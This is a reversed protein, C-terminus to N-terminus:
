STMELLASVHLFHLYDNNFHQWAINQIYAESFMKNM